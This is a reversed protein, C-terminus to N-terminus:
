HNRITLLLFAWTTWYRSELRHQSEPNWLNEESRRQYLAFPSYTEPAQDALQQCCAKNTMTKVSSLTGIEDTEGLPHAGKARHNWRGRTSWWPWQHHHLTAGMKLFVLLYKLAEMAAWHYLIQRGICSVCSSCTWDKPQSSARSSSMAVWELIRAQSIGHVSSGPWSCGM